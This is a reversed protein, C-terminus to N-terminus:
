AGPLDAWGTPWAGEPTAGPSHRLPLRVVFESGKGAGESRVMVTGHHAAVLERVLALGLGLGSGRVGGATEGQTFLDFIVPQLEPAIGHGNDEIRLTAHGSDTNAKVWVHGGADTYKIANTLLNVLVQQFRGPDVEITVPTPPLLTEIAIQKANASAAVTALAESVERELCRPEIKLRLKGAHARGMDMMDDLRRSLAAVQREIVALSEDLLLAPDPARKLIAVASAIPSLPARLEHALLAVFTEKADLAQALQRVRHKLSEVQIRTDTRDRLLKVFGVVGDDEGYLAVTVGSGWLRSGDKRRHWRDDLAKGVTRATNLEHAPVGSHRDEETFLIDFPQGVAEDAAYGFVYEAGKFWQNIRGQPDVLLVAYEDARTLLQHLSRELPTPPYAPM